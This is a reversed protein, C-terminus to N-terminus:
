HLVKEKMREKEQQIAWRDEEEKEKAKVRRM